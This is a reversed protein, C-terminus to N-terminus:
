PSARNTIGFLYFRSANAPKAFTATSPLGSALSLQEYIGKPELARVASGNQAVIHTTGGSAWIALFYLRGGSLRFDAVDDFQPQSAGTALTSTGRVIAAGTDDYVGVQVNNTSATTGNCWWFRKVTYDSPLVIPYYMAFNVGAYAGTSVITGSASGRLGVGAEVTLPSIFVSAPRGLGPYPRFSETM